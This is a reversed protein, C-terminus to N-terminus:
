YAKLCFGPFLLKAKVSDKQNERTTVNDTIIRTPQSVSCFNVKRAVLKFFHHFDIRIKLSIHYLIIYSNGEYIDKNNVEIKEDVTQITFSHCQNM